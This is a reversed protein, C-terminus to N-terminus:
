EEVYVQSSNTRATKMDTTNSEEFTSTSLRASQVSIADDESAHDFASHGARANWKAKELKRHSGRCCLLPVGLTLTSPM